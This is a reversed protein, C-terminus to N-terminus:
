RAPADDFTVHHVGRAGSPLRGTVTVKTIPRAAPDFRLSSKTCFIAQPLTLVERPKLPPDRYLFYQANIAMDINPIEYESENTLILVDTMVAGSGDPLDVMARGTKVSVPLEHDKTPGIWLAVCALISITVFVLAYLAATVFRGSLKPAANM